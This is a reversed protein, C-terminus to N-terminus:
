PKRLDVSVRAPQKLTVLVKTRREGLEPHRFVVERTGVAVQVNGIPTEGLRENDIWVEAWPVANISLTGSPPDIRVSTRRGAQVTVSRSIRLGVTDNVFELDHGGLPLMLTEAESTGILRGRSYVNLPLPAVVSLLGAAIPQAASNATVPASAVSAAAIPAPVVPEAPAPPVECPVAAALTPAPASPPTPLAGGDDVGFYRRAWLTTPIAELLVLTALVGIIWGSRRRGAPSKQPSPRETESEFGELEPDRSERVPDPSADERPPEPRPLRLVSM